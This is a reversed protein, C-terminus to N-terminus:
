LPRFTIKTRLGISFPTAHGSIGAAEGLLCFHHRSERVLDPLPVREFASPDGGSLLSPGFQIKGFSVSPPVDKLVSIDDLPFSAASFDSPDGIGVNWHRDAAAVGAWNAGPSGKVTELTYAVDSGVFSVVM